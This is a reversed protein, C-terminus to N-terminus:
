AYNVGAAVVFEGLLLSEQMDDAYTIKIEYAFTQADGPDPTNLGPLAALAARPIVPSLILRRWDARDPHPGDEFGVSTDQALPEGEAGPYLRVQMSVAAGTLPLVAGPYDVNITPAFDLNRAAYLTQIAPM